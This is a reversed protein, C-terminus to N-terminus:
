WSIPITSGCSRANSTPRTAVRVRCCFSRSAQWSEGAAIALLVAAASLMLMPIRVTTGRETPVVRNYCAV